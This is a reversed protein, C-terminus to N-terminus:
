IGRTWWRTRSCPSRWTSLDPASGGEWLICRERGGCLESAMRTVQAALEKNPVLVM